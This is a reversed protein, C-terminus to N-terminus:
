RGKKKWEKEKGSNCGNKYIREMLRNEEVRVVNEYWRRVNKSIHFQLVQFDYEIMETHDM